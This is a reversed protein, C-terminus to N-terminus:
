PTSNSQSGGTGPEAGGAGPTIAGTPGIQSSGAVNGQPVPTSSGPPPPGRGQTAADMPASGGASPLASTPAGAGAAVGGGPQPQTLPTGLNTGQPSTAQPTTGQVQALGATACPLLAAGFAATLLLIRRM